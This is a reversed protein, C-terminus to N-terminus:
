SEIRVEILFRIVLKDWFDSSSVLIPTHVGPVKDDSEPRKFFLLVCHRVPFGILVSRSFIRFWFIDISFSM